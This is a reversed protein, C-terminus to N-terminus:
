SIPMGMGVSRRVHTTKTNKVGNAYFRSTYRTKEAYRLLLKVNELERLISLKTDRSFKRRNEM